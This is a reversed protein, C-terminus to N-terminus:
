GQHASTQKMFPIFDTTWIHLVDWLHRDGTVTNQQPKTINRKVWIWLNDKLIYILDFYQAYRTYNAPLRSQKKMQPQM